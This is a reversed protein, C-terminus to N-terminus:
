RGGYRDVFLGLLLVAHGIAGATALAVGATALLQLGSLTGAGYALLGAAIAAIVTLATRDSGGPFSGVAPPYFQYSVGVITLGLFGFLNVTRHVAVVTPDPAVFALSLGLLVGVVGFSVGALVGYFGVRRRPSRAFLVAIIGAFTVVAVSELTAGAHVVPGSPLGVAILAPGVAGPVLVVPVLSKPPHAVTFRPLLRLGVTFVLLAGTGAALLHSARPRYGDFLTPLPTAGALVAYSGVALYALVVPVFANALRDVPRRDANAEGTGTASGSLNDRVTWAVTGLFVAAGLAWCVAGAREISTSLPSGFLPAAALGATGLVTLPVQVTPARPFALDRDFYAPVLSYAKGFVTHLVFGFLALTVAVRPRGAAVALWAAPLWVAGAAVFLRAGRSVTGASM